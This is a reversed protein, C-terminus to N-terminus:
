EDLMEERIKKNSMLKNREVDINNVLTAFETIESERLVKRERNLKVFTGVKLFSMLFPKTRVDVALKLRDLRAISDWLPDDFGPSSFSGNKFVAGLENAAGDIEQLSGALSLRKPGRKMGHLAILRASEHHPITKLISKLKERVKPHGANGSNKLVAKQVMEFDAFAQAVEKSKTARSIAVAEEFQSVTIIQIKAVAEIGHSVYLDEVVSRNGAPVSFVTCNKRMAGRIKAGVGGVPRVEGTATMDGTAAFQQDLPNGSIIADAMLGCAVAASPGDKPTHKDSFGFEILYGKPIKDRHRVRMLKEVEATASIMMKGVRQNFRLQFNSGRDQAPIATANMQTATGAYSGNGLDVVLLGKVKSQLLPPEAGFSVHAMLFLLSFFRM